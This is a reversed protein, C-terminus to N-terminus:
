NNDEQRMAQYVNGRLEKLNNIFYQMHSDNLFQDHLNGAKDEDDFVFRFVVKGGVKEYGFQKCHLKMFSALYLDTTSFQAM